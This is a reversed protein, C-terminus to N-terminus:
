RRKFLSRGFLAVGGLCMLIVTGPEPAGTGGVSAAETTLNDISFIHTSDLGTITIKGITAADGWGIWINSADLSPPTVTESDLLTSTPSYFVVQASSVGLYFGAKTTATGLTITLVGQASSSGFCENAFCDGTAGLNGYFFTTQVTSSFTNGNLTYPLNTSSAASGPDSGLNLGDFTTTVPSLFDTPLIDAAFAQAACITSLLALKAANM